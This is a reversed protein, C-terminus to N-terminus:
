SPQNIYISDLTQLPIQVYGKCSSLGLLQKMTHEHEEVAKHSEAPTFGLVPEVTQTSPTSNKPKIVSSPLNVAAMLTVKSAPQSTQAM